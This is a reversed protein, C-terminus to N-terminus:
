DADLAALEDILAALRYLLGPALAREHRNLSDYMSRERERTAAHRADLLARGRPTLTVTVARRDHRARDRAVIGRRQLADLINTATAPAVGATDALERVRAESADLLPLLLGYQSLTLGHRATTVGTGRARRVSRAFTDVADLFEFAHDTM